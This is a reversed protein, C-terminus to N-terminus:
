REGAFLAPITLLKPLPTPGGPPCRHPGVGLGSKLPTFLLDLASMYLCLVWHRVTVWKPVGEVYVASTYKPEDHSPSSHFRRDSLVGDRNATAPCADAKFVLEPFAKSM